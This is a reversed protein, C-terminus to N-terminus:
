REYYYVPGYITGIPSVLTPKWHPFHFAVSIVRCGSKLEKTLKEELANNTEQMLYLFVIDANRLDIYFINQQLIHARNGLRLVRIWTKSYLVRMTDLEVGIAKAGQLAAAIVVRGDGSGLEYFIEHEKIRALRMVENIVESELPAYPAGHKRSQNVYVIWVIYGILFLAFGILEFM